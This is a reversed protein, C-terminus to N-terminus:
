VLRGEFAKKLISQWLTEAQALSQNITEDVKDCVSLRSEIEQVILQQEEIPALPVPFTKLDDLNLGAKVAGKQNQNLHHHGGSKSIIWYGVYKKNFGEKPRCLCVHQNVYANELKPAIAFMGLYGTISFLFDGEQIKTRIGESNTPLNVYQINSEKLDLKLSDFDMNTIRIFIAGSNSYYKAWGRSGSTVYSFLEGSKVWSWGMPLEGEKVNENTFKGEFAWKLVAQRYIKLQQQATELQQKGKDLESLLEEIKSVIAHQAEKPPLISEFNKLDELSVNNMAGGRAKIKIKAVFSELQFQLFKLNFHGQAGRIIAFAQNTNAPLYEERVACTEGITGAISFLIDGVSLQSKKQYEHAEESIFDTISDTLVRGEKVNEIKLFRVGSRQFKFGYTTPTGGKTIKECVDGLKVWKWGAPLGENNQALPTAEAQPKASPQKKPSTKVPM